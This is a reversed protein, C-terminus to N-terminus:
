LYTKVLKTVLLLFVSIRLTEKKTGEQYFTIQFKIAQEFLIMNGKNINYM